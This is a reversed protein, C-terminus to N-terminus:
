KSSFVYCGQNDGLQLLQRPVLMYALGLQAQMNHLTRDPGNLYKERYQSSPLAQLQVHVISLLNSKKCPCKCHSMVKLVKHSKLKSKQIHVSPCSVALYTLPNLPSLIDPMVNDCHWMAYKKPAFVSINIQMNLTATATPPVLATWSQHQLVETTLWTHVEEYWVRM